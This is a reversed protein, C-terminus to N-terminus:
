RLIGLSLLGIMGCGLVVRYWAFPIFTNKQVYRLLWVVVIWATITAVAFAILAEPAALAAAHGEKVGEKYIELAGAAFMTPIGVLFSFRVASPRSLGLLLCAIVAAGSRSTGPFVAALIQGAAVAVVIGWTITDGLEKGKVKWEAFFIVFAGILTAAAIPVISEPLTFGLKKVILGAIGTLMFCSGLKILEDRTARDGLGAFLKLIHKWFVVTVAIIPGVQILVNFADTEHSKLLQEAILLHGTSSVPLFETIGEVIGLMIPKIFIDM